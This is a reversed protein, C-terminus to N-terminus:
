VLPTHTTTDSQYSFFISPTSSTNEMHRKLYPRTVIMATRIKSFGLSVDNSAGGTSPQGSKQRHGLGDGAHKRKHTHLLTCALGLYCACRLYPAAGHSSGNDVTHGIGLFSLIVGLPALHPSACLLSPRLPCVCPLAVMFQLALSRVHLRDFGPLRYLMRPGNGLAAWAALAPVVSNLSHEMEVEARRPAAGSFIGMTANSLQSKVTADVDRSPAAAGAATWSNDRVVMCPTCPFFCGSGKLCM